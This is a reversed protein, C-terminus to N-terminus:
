TPTARASMPAPAPQHIALLRCDDRDNLAVDVECLAINIEPILANAQALRAVADDYLSVDQGNFGDIALQYADLRLQVLDGVSAHLGQLKRPPRIMNLTEQVELLRPRLEQYVPVIRSDIAVSDAGVARQTVETEIASVETILPNLASRYARVDDVHGFATNDDDGCGAGLLLCLLPVACRWRRIM